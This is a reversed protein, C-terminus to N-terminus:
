PFWAKSTLPRASAPRMSWSPNNKEAPPLDVMPSHCGDVGSAGSRGSDVIRICPQRHFAAPSKAAALAQASRWRSRSDGVEYIALSRLLPPPQRSEPRHRVNNFIRGSEPALVAWTRTQGAADVPKARLVPRSAEAPGMEKVGSSQCKPSQWCGGHCIELIKKRSGLLPRARPSAPGGGFAQRWVPQVLVEAFRRLRAQIRTPM